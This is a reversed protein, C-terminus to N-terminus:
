ERAARRRHAEIAAYQAFGESFWITDLVPALEWTFPYYGKGYSRKPIWAHAFHHAFNYLVRARDSESSSATLGADKALYFTASDLHEM